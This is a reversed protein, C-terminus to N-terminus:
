RVNLIICLGTQSSVPIYCPTTRFRTHKGSLATCQHLQVTMCSTDPKILISQSTRHRRGASGKRDFGLKIGPYTAFIFLIRPGRTKSQITINKYYAHMNLWKSTRVAISKGSSRTGRVQEYRFWFYVELMKLVGLDTDYLLM